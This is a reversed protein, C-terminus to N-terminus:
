LTSAHAERLPKMASVNTSYDNDTHDQVTANLLDSRAITPKNKDVLGGEQERATSKISEGDDWDVDDDEDDSGEQRAAVRTVPSSRSDSKGFVEGSLGHRSSMSNLM